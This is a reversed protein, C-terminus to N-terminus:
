DPQHDPIIFDRTSYKTKTKDRVIPMKRDPYIVVRRVEGFHSDLHINEWRMGAIEEVRMGTYALLGMYLRQRPEPLGPIAKKVRDVVEDPLAEHHGSEEANISLLAM